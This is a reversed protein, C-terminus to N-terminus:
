YLLTPTTIHGCARVFLHLFYRKRSHQPFTSGHSRLSSRESIGHPEWTTAVQTEGGFKADRLLPGGVVSVFAIWTEKRDKCCAGLVSPLLYRQDLKGLSGLTNYQGRIILSQATSM